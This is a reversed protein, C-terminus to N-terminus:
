LKKFDRLLSIFFGIAGALILAIGLIGVAGSNERTHAIALSIAGGSLLVASTLRYSERRLAAYVAKDRLKVEVAFHGQEANRLLSQVQGPLDRSLDALERLGSVLDGMLREPKYREAIVPGAYEGLKEFVNFEPDLERALGELSGMARGLLMLDQPIQLGHRRAVSALQDLVQGTQIDKLALGLLPELVAELDRAFAEDSVHRESSGSSMSLTTRAVTRFDRSLIALFLSAVDRLLRSDLHGVVGFDLLGLRGDKLVLVNGGHIDGHFYSDIFVMKLFAQAGAEAIARTDYGAARIAEIRSLPLGDLYSMTLVQRGSLDWFVEPIEITPSGEFNKRFRDIHQAEQMFDLEARIVRAFEDVIAIPNYVSVAPVYDDLLKAITFLLSLDCEIVSEIGTRRVKVVVVRGDPLTSRHVQAISAQGLPQEEIEGFLLEPECQFEDEIQKRIESFPLPHAKDQLKKLEAAIDAPILDPRLSLMQGLKVFTPGLEDFAMRLRTPVSRSKSDPDVEKTPVFRALGVDEVIESFGHAVFVTAIEQLRKINKFTRNIKM